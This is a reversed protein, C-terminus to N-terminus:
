KKLLIVWVIEVYKKATVIPIKIFNSGAIQMCIYHEADILFLKLNHSYVVNVFSLQISVAIEYKIVLLIKQFNYFNSM